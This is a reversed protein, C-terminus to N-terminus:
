WINPCECMLYMMEFCMYYFPSWPKKMFKM